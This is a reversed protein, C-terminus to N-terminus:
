LCGWVILGAVIADLASGQNHVMRVLGTAGCVMVAVQFVVELDVPWCGCCGGEGLNVRELAWVVESPRHRMGLRTQGRKHRDHDLGWGHGLVATQGQNQTRTVLIQCVGDPVIGTTTLFPHLCLQLVLFGM